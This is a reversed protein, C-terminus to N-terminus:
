SASVHAVQLVYGRRGDKQLWALEAGDSSWAPLVADKSGQVSKKRGREDMIFIRGGKKGAFAILRAGPPGWGFTLGPVIVSNYFEGVTEAHLEMTNVVINQSTYAAAVGDDMSTGNGTSTGGRALAGGRPVSTTRERRLESELEIRLPNPDPSTQGSKALWYASAWEPEAPLTTRSGSPVSFVYHRLTADPKGFAGELTQFYLERSNPSWSLRSPAGGVERADITALTVPRSVTLSAVRVGGQEALVVPMTALLLLATSACVPVRHRLPNM